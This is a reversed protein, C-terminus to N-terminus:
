VKVAKKEILASALEEKGMKFTNEIGESSALKILEQRTKAMYDPTGEATIDEVWKKDVLKYGWFKPLDPDGLFLYGSNVQSILGKRNNKTDPLWAVPFGGEQTIAEFMIAHNKRVDKIKGAGGDVFIYSEWGFSTSEGTFRTKNLFVKIDKHEQM